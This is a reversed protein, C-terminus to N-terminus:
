RRRLLVLPACALVTAAVALAVLMPLPATDAPLFRSAIVLAIVVVQVAVFRMASPVFVAAEVRSAVPIVAALAALVHVFHFLLITAALRVGIDSEGDVLELVVVVALLVGPLLSAPAATAGLAALVVLLAVPFALGRGGAAVAVLALSALLLVLRVLGGSLTPGDLGTARENGTM